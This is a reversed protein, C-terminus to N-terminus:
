VGLRSFLIGVLINEKPTDNTALCRNFITQVNGGTLELPHFSDDKHADNYKKLTDKLGM